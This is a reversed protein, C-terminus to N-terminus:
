VTQSTAVLRPWTLSAGFPAQEDRAGVARHNAPM